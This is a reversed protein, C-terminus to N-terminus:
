SNEPVGLPEFPHEKLYKILRNGMQLMLVATLGGSFVGGLVPVVKSVAKAFSDKTIYVGIWRAIQKAANYFAYKTLAVRPLREAIGKALAQAFNNIAKVAASSGMMVGLFIAIAMKFDDTAVYTNLSPWGYLYALKQALQIANYYFQAIDTPISAALWWGGPLGDAFSISSSIMVHYKVVGYAAKDLTETDIGAHSPSTLIAVEIKDSEAYPAFEKRFFAEREIKIGPMKLVIDMIKNFVDLSNERAPKGM